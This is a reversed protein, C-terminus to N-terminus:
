HFQINFLIEIRLNSDLSHFFLIITTSPSVRSLTILRIGLCLNTTLLASLGISIECWHYLYGFSFIAELDYFHFISYKIIIAVLSLWM